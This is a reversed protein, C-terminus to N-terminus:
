LIEFITVSVSINSTARINEGTSVPYHRVTYSTYSISLVDRYCHSISINTGLVCLPRQNISAKEWPM